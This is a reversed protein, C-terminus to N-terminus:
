NAVKAISTTKGAGNLGVLMIRTQKEDLKLEAKHQGLINVLEDKVIQLLVKDPEQGKEM